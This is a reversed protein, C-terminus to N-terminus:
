HAKNIQKKVKRAIRNHASFGIKFSVEDDETKEWILRQTKNDKFKEFVRDRLGTDNM